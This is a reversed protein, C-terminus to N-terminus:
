EREYWFLDDFERDSHFVRLYGASPKLPPRPFVASNIFLLGSPDLMEGLNKLALAQEFPDYYIFVNTAVILDFREGAELSLREVVVNLDLPVISAMRSAPVRVARVRVDTTGPPEVSAVSEGAFGGFRTWYDVLRAHWPQTESLPLTIVYDEGSDVRARATEIHHNVRPSLDLTTVLLDSDDALGIRLLTDIVAFPQITQQPYFDYGNAKNVFDLGPGVIAVRRVSDKSLRGTSALAELARDIAHNPLISTDTSLGRDSFLSTNMIVGPRGNDLRRTADVAAELKRFEASARDRGDRLLTRIRTRGAPTTPDIGLSEVHQRAFQLRENSGKSALGNLLDELRQELMNGLTVRDVAGLDAERVPLANTFSTGYLWLNVISDEDGRSVRRRIQADHQAIWMPWANELEDPSYSALGAPLDDAMSELISRVEAFSLYAKPREADSTDQAGSSSGALAYVLAASLVAARGISM